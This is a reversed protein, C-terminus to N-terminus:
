AARQGAHRGAAFEEVMERCFAQLDRPSRSTVLGQDVVVEQDVWEAGANRLDTRLSPYSTLRRGRVVDAEVLMWPGHCISAVPKHAEFFARVFAVAEPEIRLKDPNMTGGPLILADYDSEDAAELAVDVAMEGGWNGHEWGRIREGRAKPAIVHVIGGANRVADRPTTLEVQEFGDTALIAVRKGELKGPMEGEL